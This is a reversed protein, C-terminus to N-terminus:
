FIPGVRIAIPLGPGTAANGGGSPPAVAGPNLAQSCMVGTRLFHPYCLVSKGIPATLFYHTNLIIYDQNAVPVDVTLKSDNDWFYYDEVNDDPVAGEFEERLRVTNVLTATQLTNSFNLGSGGRKDHINGDITATGTVIITLKYLQDNIIGRLVPSTTQDDGHSDFIPSWGFARLDVTGHRFTWAAGQQSSCLTREGYHGANQDVMFYFDEFVARNTSDNAMPYYASWMASGSGDGGNWGFNRAARFCNNVTVTHFLNAGKNYLGVRMDHIYLNDGVCWSCGNFNVANGNTGQLSFMQMSGIRSYDNSFRFADTDQQLSSYNWAIITQNTGVGRIDLQKTIAKTAAYVNSGRPLILYGGADAATYATDFDASSSSAALVTKSAPLLPWRTGNTDVTISAWDIFCGPNVAGHPDNQGFDLQLVRVGSSGTGLPITSTAIRQWTNTNFFWIHVRGDAGETSDFKCSFAYTTGLVPSFVNTFVNANAGGLSEATGAFTHAQIWNTGKGASSFNQMNFSLFDGNNATLYLLDQSNFSITSWNTSWRVYGGVTVKTSSPISYRVWARQANTYYSRLGMTSNTYYFNTGGITWPRVPPAFFNTTIRIQNATALNATFNTIRWAGSGRAGENILSSTWVTGDTATAQFSNFAGTDAIALLPSFPFLLLLLVATRM